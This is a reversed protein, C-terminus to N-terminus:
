VRRGREFVASNTAAPAAVPAVRGLFWVRLREDDCVGESRLGKSVGGAGPYVRAGGEANGKRLWAPLGSGPVGMGPESARRADCSLKLRRDFSILGGFEAIPTEYGAAPAPPYAATRAIPPSLDLM